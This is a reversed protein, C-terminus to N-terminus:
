THEVRCDTKASVEGPGFVLRLDRRAANRPRTSPEQLAHKLLMMNRARRLDLRRQQHVQIWARIAPDRCNLTGSDIATQSRWNSAYVKALKGGQRASLRLAVRTTKDIQDRTCTPRTDTPDPAAGLM